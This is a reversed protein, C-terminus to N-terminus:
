HFCAALSFILSVDMKLSDALLKRAKKRFQETKADCRMELSQRQNSKTYFLKWRRLINKSLEKVENSDHKRLQNVVHGIKTELLVTKSPTCKELKRLTTLIQDVRQDEVSLIAKAQHIEEVM